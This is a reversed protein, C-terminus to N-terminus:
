ATLGVESLAILAADSLLEGGDQGYLRAVAGTFGANYDLAVENGVFDTRSDVYAFDNPSSPGGVLAGQLVHQNPDPDNINTTGSASRHHIYDPFDEGVGVVYSQGTPNDGLIYDVQNRSFADYQGNAANVTDSYVGAIFATNASYRLSGWSDLWALGGETTNIDGSVWNNLWSEVGNRYQQEDTIQALLVGTGYAKDDWSQTWGVYPTQYHQKAKTLYQQEGTAKYLWTAGWALEDNYGSWSNYYNSAETISDSYRGRYTDAFTYLQKANALLEDAYATDTERFLISAAALTAATEAALDSGPNAADIKYAPRPTNLQEPSGWYAHDLNADGVQGYFAQTAQGNSIHAKLFYDTAWKIADLAEDLQNSQVFADHYELVGWSLMTMSAAMPFGFKVHDGADYYGGSLDVGVDVGDNLASDGRWALRNDAPLDGSRQAEYFLFSKQLAEGYGASPNEPRPTENVEIDPEISPDESADDGPVSAESSDEVPPAEITPAEIPLEEVLPPEPNPTVPTSPVSVESPDGIETGNFFYNSPADVFPENAKFGITITDGTSLNGNWAANHITYFNDGQDVLEGHWIEALTFPAYFTLEWSDISETGTYTFDLNAVFGSAWQDTVTFDVPKITTETPEAITEPPKISAEPQEIVITTEDTVITTEDPVVVMTSGNYIPTSEIMAAQHPYSTANIGVFGVRAIEGPELQANWDKASITYRNGNHSLLDGDWINDIDFTTEFTITWSNITTSGTNEIVWYGVLGDQWDQVIEFTAKM